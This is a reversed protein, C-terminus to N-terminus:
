GSQHTKVNQWKCVQSYQMAFLGRVNHSAKEFKLWYVYPNLRKLRWRKRRPSRKTSIASWIFLRNQCIIMTAQLWAKLAASRTKLHCWSELRAPLFKPLTSPEAVHFPQSLFREVKRARSVTLKDDESLEEMGLIAIIDQLAKYQPLIEQVARATQYYLAPVM